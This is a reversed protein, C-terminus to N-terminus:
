KLVNYIMLMHDDGIKKHEKLELNMDVERDFISLGTGFVHPAITLHIETILNEDAFLSNITSGGILAVDKYGEQELDKLIESATKQTFILNDDDSTRSTNRTMVINKRNPLPFGITDYTNSGMIMVGAKKTLDVFYKKDAEGSWDVRESSSKAIIGDVTTVMLLQVNM